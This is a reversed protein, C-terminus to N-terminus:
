ESSVEQTNNVVIKLLLGRVDAPPIIPERSVIRVTSGSATWEADAYAACEGCLSATQTVGQDDTIAYLWHAGPCGCDTDPTM